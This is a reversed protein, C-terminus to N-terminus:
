LGAMRLSDPIEKISFYNRMFDPNVDALSKYIEIALTRLQKQHISVENNQILLEEYCENSNYVIKLARYHIKEVELYDQKRCFM